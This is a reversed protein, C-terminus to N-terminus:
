QPRPLLAVAAERASMKIARTASVVSLTARAIADVDGGVRFPDRINKGKFQAVFEPRDVSFYGYPEHHEVVVVGAIVGRTDLGVLMKIPGDYGRELPVLETTWFAVGKFTSMGTGPDPAFAKFHPPDGSKPLFVAGPFIKQLLSMLKPDLVTQASTSSFAAMAVIVLLWGAKINKAM